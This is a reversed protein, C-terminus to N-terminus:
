MDKALVASHRTEGLIISEKTTSIYFWGTEELMLTYDPSFALSYHLVCFLDTFTIFAIILLNIYCWPSTSSLHIDGIALGTCHTHHLHTLLEGCTICYFNHELIIGLHAIPWGNFM